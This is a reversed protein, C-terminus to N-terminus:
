NQEFLEYYHIKLIEKLKAISRVLTKGVSAPHIGMIEAMESYSFGQHYLLLIERDRDPLTGLVKFVIRKRESNFLDNQLNYPENNEIAMEENKQLAKIESTFETKFLNLLVKYLWARPNIFVVDKELELYFRLFTEQILDECKETSISFSRSFRRLEQYHAKYVEDFLM